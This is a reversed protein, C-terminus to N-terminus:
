MPRGPQPPKLNGFPITEVPAINGVVVEIRDSNIADEILLAGRFKNITEEDKPKMGMTVQCARSLEKKLDKSIIIGTVVRKEAVVRNMKEDLYKILDYGDSLLVGDETLM